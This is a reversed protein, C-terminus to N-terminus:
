TATSNQTSLCRGELLRRRKCTVRINELWFADDTVMTAKFIDGPETDSTADQGRKPTGVRAWWIALIEKCAHFSEGFCIASRIGDDEM